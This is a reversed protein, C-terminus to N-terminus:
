PCRAFASSGGRFYLATCVDRESITGVFTRAADVVPLLDAASEMMRRIAEHLTDTLRCASVQPEMLQHVNM